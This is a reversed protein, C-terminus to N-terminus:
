RQLIKGSGITKLKSRVKSVIGIGLLGDGDMIKSKMEKAKGSVNASTGDRLNKLLAPM